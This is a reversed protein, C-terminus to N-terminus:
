IAAKLPVWKFGSLCYWAFVPNEVTLQTNFVIDGPTGAYGPVGSGHAISRTGLKLKQITVTGDKDISLNETFNVGFSIGQNRNTGIYATQAKFKGAIIEVEEDWVALAANPATTNIGVRRDAVHLSGLDTKGAVKLDSLTGVKTLSSETIQEGLTNESLAATGNLLVTNFNIENAKASVVDVMNEEVMESISSVVNDIIKATLDDWAPTPEVTKTVTLKNVTAHATTLDEAVNASRATLTGEVIVEDDTVTLERGAADCRIASGEFHKTLQGAVITDINTETDIKRVLEMIAQSKLKGLLAPDSSIMSGIHATTSDAIHETVTAKVDDMDITNGGLLMTALHEAVQGAISKKVMEDLNFNRALLSVAQSRMSALLEADNNFLHAVQEKVTETVTSTVIADLENQDIM